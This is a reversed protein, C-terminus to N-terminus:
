HIQLQRARVRTQRDFEQTCRPCIGHSFQANSQRAMYVYLQEWSDEDHCVRKCHTCIPIIGRLTKLEDLTQQLERARAELEENLRRLEKLDRFRACAIAIAQRLANIEAPKTLYAGVGSDSARALFEDSRHATLIVVPTPCSQQIQDAAELGDMIPMEIDMLVVDPRLQSTMEVAARGNSAVGALEYGAERALRVMEEGVLYDDEVILVRISSDNKMEESQNDTIM